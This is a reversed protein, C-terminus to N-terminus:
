RTLPLSVRQCGSLKRATKGCWDSLNRRRPNGRVMRTQAFRKALTPITRLTEGDRPLARARFPKGTAPEARPNRRQPNPSRAPFTEGNHPKAQRKATTPKGRRASRRWFTEGDRPNAASRFLNRRRPHVGVVKPTATMEGFLNRRRPTGTPM